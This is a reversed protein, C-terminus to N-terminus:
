LNINLSSIDYILELIKSSHDFMAYESKLKKLLGSSRIIYEGKLRIDPDTISLLVVYSAELIISINSCHLPAYFKDMFGCLLQLINCPNLIGFRRKIINHMFLICRCIIIVLDKQHFCSMCMKTNNEKGNCFIVIDVLYALINEYNSVLSAICNLNDDHVINYVMDIILQVIITDSETANRLRYECCELLNMNILMETANNQDSVLELLIEFTEYMYTDVYKAIYILQEGYINVIDQANEKKKLSGRVLYLINKATPEQYM